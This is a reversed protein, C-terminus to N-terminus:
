KKICRVSYAAQSVSSTGRYVQDVNYFLKRIIAVQTSDGRMEETSTWFYAAADRKKFITGHGLAGYLRGGGMRANFGMGQEGEKLLIGVQNGRWQEMKDLEGAEMGLSAELKKWDEDTPLAWGEPVALKAGELSYLFGYHDKYGGNLTEAEALFNSAVHDKSEQELEKQVGLMYEYVEPFGTYMQVFYKVDYYVGVSALRISLWSGEPEVIIGDELAKQVVEIFKEPAAFLDTSDMQKERFSYCGQWSGYPPRYHLNEAMWTQGNITFCKYESGDREDIFNSYTVGSIVPVGPDDDACAYWIVISLIVFIIKKM